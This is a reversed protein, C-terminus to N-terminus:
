DEGEYGAERIEDITYGDEMASGIGRKVAAEYQIPYAAKFAYIVNYIVDAYEGGGEIENIVDTAVLDALSEM